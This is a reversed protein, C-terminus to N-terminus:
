YFLAQIFCGSRSEKKVKVPVPPPPYHQDFSPSKYVPQTDGQGPNFDASVESPSPCLTEDMLCEAWLRDIPNQASPVWGDSDPILYVLKFGHNTILQWAMEGVAQCLADTAPFDDSLGVSIQNGDVECDTIWEALYVIPPYNYCAYFAAQDLEPDTEFDMAEDASVFSAMFLVLCCGIIGLIKKM